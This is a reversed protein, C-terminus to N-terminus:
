GLDADLAESEFDKGKSGANKAILYSIFGGLCAGALACVYNILVDDFLIDSIVAGALELGVWLIITILIFLFPKLGKEKVIATNTKCLFIIAIIELM